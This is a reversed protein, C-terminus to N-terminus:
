VIKFIYEMFSIGLEDKRVRLNGRLRAVFNRLLGIINSVIDEDPEVCVNVLISKYEEALNMNGLEQPIGLVGYTFICFFQNFYEPLEGGERRFLLM